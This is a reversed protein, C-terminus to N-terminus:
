NNLKETPPNKYNKLKRLVLPSITIWILVVVWIRGELFNYDHFLKTWPHGMVFHGFIFEFIVTIALWFVGVHIAEVTSNLKLWPIIFWVYLGFLPIFSLVSLQHATLEDFYVQYIFQRISGNAIAIPVGPIWTLLYKWKV